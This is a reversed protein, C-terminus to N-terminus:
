RAIARVTVTINYTGGDPAYQHGPIPDFPEGAVFDTLVTSDSGDGWDVTLTQIDSSCVAVCPEDVQGQVEWVPGGLNYNVFQSNLEPVVNHITVTTSATAYVSPDGELWVWMELTEVDTETGNGPSPGDDGFMSSVEFMGNADTEVPFGPTYQATVTGDLTYQAPPSIYGRIIFGETENADEPQDLTLSISTLPSM